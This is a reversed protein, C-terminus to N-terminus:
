RNVSPTGGLSRLTVTTMLVGSPESLHRSRQSMGSEGCGQRGAADV